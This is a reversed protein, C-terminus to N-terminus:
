KHLRYNCTISAGYKNFTITEIDFNSNFMKTIYLEVTKKFQEKCEKKTVNLPITKTFTNPKNKFHNMVNIFDGSLIEGISYGEFVKLLDNYKKFDLWVLLATLIKTNKLYNYWNDDIVTLPDLAFLIHYATDKTM